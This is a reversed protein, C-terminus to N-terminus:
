HHECTVIGDHLLGTQGQYYMQNIIMIIIMIFFIRTCPTENFHHNRILIEVVFNVKVNLRAWM